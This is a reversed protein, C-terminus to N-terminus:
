RIRNSARVFILSIGSHRPIVQALSMTDSIRVLLSIDVVAPYVPNIRNQSFSKVFFNALILMSVSPTRPGDM